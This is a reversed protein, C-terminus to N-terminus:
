VQAMSPGKRASGRSSSMISRGGLISLVLSGILTAWLFWFFACSAQLEQCRKKPNSSGNTLFNHTVYAENGCSHVHLYAALIVAAIFTFIVALGDMVMLVIPIALSEVFGAALGYILVIWCFVAVFMSYNITAPNGSYADAIVNGILATIIIVWIFQLGRLITQPLNM